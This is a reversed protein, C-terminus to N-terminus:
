MAQQVSENGFKKLDLFAYVAFLAFLVAYNSEKTEQVAQRFAILDYTYVGHFLLKAAKAGLYDLLFLLGVGWHVVPVLRAFPRIIVSLFPILVALSMWLLDFLTEFPIQYEFVAINHINTEGQVNIANLADPTHVDFIRQGWSIEEGAGFLFLLALGLYALKKVWFVRGAMHPKLAHLFGSFFFVAAVFFGIAGMTEFFHDEPYSLAAVKDGFALVPYTLLIYLAM